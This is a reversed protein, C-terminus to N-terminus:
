VILYKGGRSYQAGQIDWDQQYVTKKAGSALDYSRLSAFERGSDSVFLLKANDPSFDAPTNNVAGTHQTINKTTKTASDYLFIDADTSTKPKVLAVYRK